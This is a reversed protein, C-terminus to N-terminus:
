SLEDEEKTEDSFDANLRKMCDPCVGHSFEAETRDHIYSEVQHSYGADDRIKKWASCIPIIGRLQKVESLAKQLEENLHLLVSESKRIEQLRQM